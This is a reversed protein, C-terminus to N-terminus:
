MAHLTPNIVASLATNYRLSYHLLEPSLRLHYAVALMLLLLVHCAALPVALGFCLLALCPVM